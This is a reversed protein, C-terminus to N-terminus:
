STDFTEAPTVHQSLRLWCHIRTITYGDPVHRYYLTNTDHSAPAHLVNRGQTHLTLTDTLFARVLDWLWIVALILM